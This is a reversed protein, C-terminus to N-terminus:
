YRRGLPRLRRAVDHWFGLRPVDRHEAAAATMDELFRDILGLPAHAELLRAMRLAALDVIEASV